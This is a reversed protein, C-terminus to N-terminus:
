QKQAVDPAKKANKLLETLDEGVVWEKGSVVIPTTVTISGTATAFSMEVFRAWYGKSETVNAIPFQCSKKDCKGSLRSSTFVVGANVRFDRLKPNFAQWLRATIPASHTQVATMRGQKSLTWNLSPPSVNEIFTGYFNIVEQTVLAMNIQHSQNPIVRLTNLGPLKKLYLSVSDAAFFDDGAASIIYKPIALRRQYVPNDDYTLPDEIQMLQSFASSDIRETIGQAIYDQFAPPWGKFSQYIHKLNAKTDLIDIVIPIIGNVREDALAVLWAAWGRKSAGSVVFDTPIVWGQDKAIAQVADMAMIAAKAMPLHVPWYAQTPDDLYRSWSYAVLDDEKREIGDSFTLYQNPSFNIEMVYANTAKAIALADMNNSQSVADNNLPHNVGGNIIMLGQHPRTTNLQNPRYLNIQHRWTTGKKSIEKSPWFISSLQYQYITINGSQSSDDLRWKPLSGKKKAQMFCALVMQPAQFLSQPDCAAKVPQAWLFGLLLLIFFSHYRCINALPFWLMM